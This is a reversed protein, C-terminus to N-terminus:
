HADKDGFTLPMFYDCLDTDEPPYMYSQRFGSPPACYRWCEMKRECSAGICKTIDTLM